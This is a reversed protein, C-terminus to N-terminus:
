QRPVFQLGFFGLPVIQPPPLSHVVENQVSPTQQPEALQAVHWVQLPAEAPLQVSMGAPWVSALLTGTQLPVLAQLPSPLQLSALPCTHVASLAHALPAHTSLKM